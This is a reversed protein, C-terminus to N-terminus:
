GAVVVLVYGVLPSSVWVGGGTGIKNMYSTGGMYSIYSRSSPRVAANERLGPYCILNIMM